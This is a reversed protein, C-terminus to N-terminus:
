LWCSTFRTYALIAQYSTNFMPNLWSCPVIICFPVPCSVQMFILECTLIPTFGLSILRKPHGHFNLSHGWPDEGSYGLCPSLGLPAIQTPRKLFHTKVRANWWVSPAWLFSQMVPNHPLPDHGLWLLWCRYCEIWSWFLLFNSPNPFFKLTTMFGWIRITSDM